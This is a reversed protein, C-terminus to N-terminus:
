PDFIVIQHERYEALLRRFWEVFHLRGEGDGKRRPLFFQAESKSPHLRSLLSAFDRNAPVWPDAERGGIRNTFGQDGRNITLVAKARASMSPRVTKELWDFKVPNAAHGVVHAQLHIERILGIRWRCCLTGQRSHEGDFGFIELETSDTRARLQESVEFSFQFVGEAHRV